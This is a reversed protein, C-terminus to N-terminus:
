KKQLATQLISPVRTGVRQNRDKRLVEGSTPHLMGTLMKLTTSKGAGNAGLLGYVCNEPIKLSVQKVAQQGKFNKSLNKTELLFHEM